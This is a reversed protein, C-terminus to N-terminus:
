KEQKQYLERRHAELMEIKKGAFEAATMVKAGHETAIETVLELRELYQPDRLFHHDVVLTRVGADCIMRKMNEFSSELARNGFHYLVYSLPGDLFVLQPRHELIFDLQERVPPGEVDSTHIFRTKGDDVLVETVYGLKDNTGHFVPRSFAIETNGFRFRKGDSYEISKAIGKIKPIFESARGAQSPNTNGEPDKLFVAKGGFLEHHEPNYHDLHYHTVILVSSKKAHSVISKWAQAMKAIERPHPGLGFRMPALSVSPDIVLKVDKTEVYTAMSRTGMSDSALPVVKM